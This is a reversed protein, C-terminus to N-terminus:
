KSSFTRKRSSEAQQLVLSTTRFFQQAPSESLVLLEGYLLYYRELAQGRQKVREPTTLFSQWVKEEYEIRTKLWAIEEQISFLRNDVPQVSSSRAREHENWVAPESQVSRVDAQEDPDNDVIFITDGNPQERPQSPPINETAEEDDLSGDGGQTNPKQSSIDFKQESKRSPM